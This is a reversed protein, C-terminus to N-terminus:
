YKGTDFLQCFNDSKTLFNEVLFVFKEVKDRQAEPSIQLFINKIIEMNQVDDGLQGMDSLFLANLMSPLNELRSLEATEDARQHPIIKLV